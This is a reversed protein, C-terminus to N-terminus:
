NELMKQARALVEKPQDMTKKVLAELEEGSTPDVDMKGKEAERLLEPDKMAKDYAARLIKIREPPTGPTVMMPRGFDGGTLLVQALRRTVDPTKYQDFLENITPVDTMRPDRKKGTQVIHRDFNKKHWTDFPERGFHASINHARCVVEGKEVALDIESGGPYGLVTDIKAGVAEELLKSLIYDGSATGSSGCKVPEKAKVLDHITKYPTDARMYMVITESAPSGIWGFKRADFQVEKRGVLQDLYFNYHTMVLTLGDPKAVNYVHNAAVLSGAGPMNQVIIEPNGPIYKPMYRAYLRAWRDYFGGPTFGVMIRIAKGKYFPEQAVAQEASHSLCYVASALLCLAAVKGKIM